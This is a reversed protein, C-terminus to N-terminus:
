LYFFIKVSFFIVNTTPMTKNFKPPGINKGGGGVRKSIGPCAVAVVVYTVQVINSNSAM